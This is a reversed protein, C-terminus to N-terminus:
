RGGEGRRVGKAKNASTTTATTLCTKQKSLKKCNKGSISISNGEKNNGRESETHPHTHSHAHTHAYARQQDTPLHRLIKILKSLLRRPPWKIRVAPPPAPCSCTAYRAASRKIFFHLIFRLLPLAFISAFFLLKPLSFHSLPSPPETQLPFSHLHAFQTSM